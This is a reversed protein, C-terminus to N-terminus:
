AREIHGELGLVGFLETCVPSLNSIVLRAGTCRAHAAADLIVHLGRLDIFSVDGLDCIVTMAENQARRLTDRAEMAVALDLEGVMLLHASGAEAPYRMSYFFPPEALREPTETRWTYRPPM